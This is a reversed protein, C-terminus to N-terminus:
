PPLTWCWANGNTDKLVTLDHPYPSSSNISVPEPTQMTHLQPQDFTSTAPLQFLLAYLLVADKPRTPTLMKSFGMNYAQSLLLDAQNNSQLHGAKCCCM